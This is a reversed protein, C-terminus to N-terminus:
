ELRERDPETDEFVYISVGARVTGETLQESEPEEEQSLWEDFMDLLKQGRDAVRRRFIPLMQPRLRPTWAVGEFLSPTGDAKLNHDLTSVHDHIADAFHMLSQADVRQARYNRALVRLGGSQSRRIAGIASLEDRMARHGIDGSYRQCLTQFTAGDGEIDLVKPNGDSDIFDPDQHWGSLVRATRHRHWEYSRVTQWENTLYERVQARSLGTRVAIRSRNPKKGIKTFEEAAAHVFASKCLNSFEHATMGFRLLFRIIPLMMRYVAIDLHKRISTSM